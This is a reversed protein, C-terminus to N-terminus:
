MHIVTTTTTTTAANYPMVAPQSSYTPAAQTTQSPGMKPPGSTKVYAMAMDNGDVRLPLDPSSAAQTRECWLQLTCPSLITIFHLMDVLM